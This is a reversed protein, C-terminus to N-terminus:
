GRRRTPERGTGPHLRRRCAVSRRPIRKAAPLVVVVHQASQADLRAVSEGAFAAPGLATRLEWLCYWRQFYAEDAFVVVVRSGLLADVLVKPFRAGLEIDSEDLFSQSGLARHLAKAQPASASRAYSIFVSKPSGPSPPRPRAPRRPARARGGSQGKKRRTRTGTTSM